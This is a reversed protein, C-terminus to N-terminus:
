YFGDISLLFLKVRAGNKKKPYISFFFARYSQDYKSFARYSLFTLKTLNKAQSPKNKFKWTQRERNRATKDIFKFNCPM